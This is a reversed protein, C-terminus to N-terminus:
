LYCSYRPSFPRFSQRPAVLPNLAVHTQHLSQAARLLHHQPRLLRRPAAGEAAAGDGGGVDLAGPPEAAEGEAPLDLAVERARM